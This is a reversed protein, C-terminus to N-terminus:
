HTWGNGRGIGESSELRRLFTMGSLSAVMQAETFSAPLGAYVIPGVALSDIRIPAGRGIGNATVYQRTFGLNDPSYGLRQADAPSLVIDSAGTDILFDVPVGNVTATVVFHGGAGARVEVVGEAVEVARSPM